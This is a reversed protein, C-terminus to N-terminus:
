IWVPKTGGKAVSEASRVWDIGDLARNVFRSYALRARTDIFVPHVKYFACNEIYVDVIVNEPNGWIIIGPKLKFDKFQKNVEISSIINPLIGQYHCVLDLTCPTKLLTRDGFVIEECEDKWSIQEYFQEIVEKDTM